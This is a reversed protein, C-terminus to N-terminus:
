KGLKLIIHDKLIMDCNHIMFKIKSDKCHSKWLSNVCYVKILILLSQNASLPCLGARKTSLIFLSPSNNIHIKNATPDEKKAPIVAIRAFHPIWFVSESTAVATLVITTKQHCPQHHQDRPSKRSDVIDASLRQQKENQGSQRRSCRPQAIKMRELFAIDVLNHWDIFRTRYQRDEQRQDKEM